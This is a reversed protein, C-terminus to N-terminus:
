GGGVGIWDVGNVVIVVVFGISTLFNGRKPRGKIQVIFFTVLSKL